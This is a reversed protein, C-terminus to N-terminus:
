AVGGADFQGGRPADVGGVLVEPVLLPARRNVATVIFHAVVGVSVSLDARGQKVSSPPAGSSYRVRAAVHVPVGPPDTRPRLPVDGRIRIQTEINRVLRELAGLM